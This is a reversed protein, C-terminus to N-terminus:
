KTATCWALQEKMPMKLNGPSHSAAGNEAEWCTATPAPRHWCRQLAHRPTAPHRHVAAQHLSIVKRPLGSFDTDINHVQRAHQPFSLWGAAAQGRFYGREWPQQNADPEQTGAFSCLPTGPSAPATCARGRPSHECPMLRQEARSRWLSFLRTGELLCFDMMEALQKPKLSSGEECLSNREDWEVDFVIIQLLPIHIVSPGHPGVM